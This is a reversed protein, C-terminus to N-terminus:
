DIKKRVTKFKIVEEMNFTLKKSQYGQRNTLKNYRNLHQMLYVIRFVETIQM